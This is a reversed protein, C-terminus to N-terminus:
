LGLAGTPIFRWVDVERMYGLTTEIRTHRMFRAVDAVPVGARGLTTAAGARLSHASFRGPIGAAATWCRVVGDVTAGAAMPTLETWSSCPNSPFAPFMPADARFSPITGTTAAQTWAWFWRALARNPDHDPNRGQQLPVLAGKGLQDTKSHHITLLGGNPVARYAGVTLDALEQRRLAGAFGVLLIARDRLLRLHRVPDTAGHIADQLPGLTQVLLDVTLPDAKSQQKREQRRVGAWAARVIAEQTPAQLGAHKHVYSIASMWSRLTSLAPRTGDPLRVSAIFAAVAAPAAPLPTQQTRACWTEWAAWGHAYATRTAPSKAARLAAALREAAAVAEPNTGLISVDAGLVLPLASEPAPAPDRVPVLAPAPPLARRRRPRM